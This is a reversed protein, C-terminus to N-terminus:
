AGLLYCGGYVIAGYIIEAIKTPKDLWDRNGKIDFDWCILYVNSALLGIIIYKWDFWMMPIMPCTYRLTMYLYDYVRGYLEFGFKEALWDCPKHYWRENYRKIMEDNPKGGYGLDFCCGHGRSWFQIQLWATIVVPVIWDDFEPLYISLFLLCMFATQLGRSSLIKFKEDPFMGGYWRRAFGGLISYIFFM